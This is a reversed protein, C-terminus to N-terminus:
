PGGAPPALALTVEFPGLESAALSPDDVPFEVFVYAAQLAPGGARPPAIEIVLATGDAAAADPAACGLAQQPLCGPARVALGVDAAATTVTLTAGTAVEAPDWSALLVHERRHAGTCAHAHADDHPASADITRAVPQGSVLAVPEASACDDGAVRECTGAAGPQAVCVTGTECRGLGPLGCTDHERVTARWRATLEFGLDDAGLAAALAPDDADVGVAVVLESGAALDLLTLPLGHGCGLAAGGGQWSSACSGGLVGVRPVFGSGRASLELDAPVQTRVRAFVEPGGAGCAGGLDSAANWLSSRWPAAGLEVAEDCRDGDAMPLEFVTTSGSGDADGSTMPKDKTPHEDGAEGDGGHGCACACALSLALLRPSPM